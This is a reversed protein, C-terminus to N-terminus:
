PPADLDRRATPALDGAASFGNRAFFPDHLGLLDIIVARSAHAGVLGHESMAFSTGPPAESLWGRSKM